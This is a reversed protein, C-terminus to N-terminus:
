DNMTNNNSEVTRSGDVNVFSPMAPPTSTATTSQNHIMVHKQVTHKGLPVGSLTM